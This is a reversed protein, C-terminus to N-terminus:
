CFFISYLASSYAINHFISDHSIRYIETVRTNMGIGGFSLDFKCKHSHWWSCMEVKRLDPKDNAKKSNWQAIFCWHQAMVGGALLVLACPFYLVIEVLVTALREHVYSDKWALWIIYYTRVKKYTERNFSPHGCRSILEGKRGRECKSPVDM